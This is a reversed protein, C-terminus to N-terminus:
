SGRPSTPIGPAGTPATTESREAPGSERHRAASHRASCTTAYAVAAATVLQACIIALWNAGSLPGVQLRLIGLSLLVAMVLSLITLAWGVRPDINPFANPNWGPVASNSKAQPDM